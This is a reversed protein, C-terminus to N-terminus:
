WCGGAPLSRLMGAKLVVKGECQIFAWDLQMEFYMAESCPFIVGQM